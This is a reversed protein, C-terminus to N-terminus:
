KEDRTRSGEGRGGAGGRGAGRHAGGGGGGGTDGTEKGGGGGRRSGRSRTTCKGGFAPLSYIYAARLAAFFKSTKPRPCLFYVCEGAISNITKSLTFCTKESMKVVGFCFM